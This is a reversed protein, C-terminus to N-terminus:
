EKLLVVDNIHTLYTVGDIKVQVQDSNEYDRWSQIVGDVVTGDPLKIIARNFTFVTDFHQRNGRTSLLLCVGTVVAFFILKM